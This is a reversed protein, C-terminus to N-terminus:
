DCILLSNLRHNSVVGDAIRLVGLMSRWNHVPTVVSSVSAHLMARKFGFATEFFVLTDTVNKVYLITYKFILNQM